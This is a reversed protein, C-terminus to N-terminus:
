PHGLASRASLAPEVMAALQGLTHYGLDAANIRAGTRNEFRAVVQMAMLSSGGLDYFNDTTEVADVGLLDRWLEALLQEGPTRPGRVGTTSRAGAAVAQPEPPPLRRRDLKGNPTLPLSALVVFAGPVMYDPLRTRLFPRLVGDAAAAAIDGVVYAVLRPSRDSSSTPADTAVVASTRVAAHQGLAAEIDQLEVRFGRIKVQRDHRGVFAVAGDPLYRGMDGTRYLRDGARGTFPNVVFRERTLDDDGLYGRALQPGRVHVEGVEGIGALRGGANLVLLQVGDIGRGIPVAAAPAPCGEPPDAAIHYAVAQPTETAGYFNVVRGAPALRRWLAVADRTLVDGAFCTLRLAPLTPLTPRAQDIMGEDSLAVALAPTVHVVTVGSEALWARLRHPSSMADPDPVCVTAGLALPTFVDRLLPDHALGSLLAFRDSGDLGFTRSHWGVFRALPGHEGLIGKPRGSSGSTFAIYALDGPGVAGCGDVDADAPPPLTRACLGGDAAAPDLRVRHCGLSAICAELMDPPEGAASLGIFARPRAIALCDALRAVPHAPDLIVFAAGARLTGLLAPVLAAGRHAYIAVADGHAIGGAQLATAVRASWADLEAYTWVRHADAVAPRGPVRRAQRVFAEVVTRPEDIGTAAGGSWATGAASAEAAGLAERPDPLQRRASETLLSLASIPRDPDATAQELLLELQALWETMRAPLFLDANYVLALGLRGDRESVYLTLDFKSGPDPQVIPTSVIGPLTEAGEDFGMVNFFVQFLPTRGPDRPPQLAELLKEFPVDQHSFAALAVERVRGALTRFSPAGSLDTRLVLSNVFFGVIPEIDARSRGAIPTGVVVDDQGTQRHLLAKFAALLAMFVTLGEQRCLAQIAQTLRAPLRRTTRAGRYSSMAPRAFDTPLDLPAPPGELQRRWYDISGSRDDGAAQERQWVAYDAYQIPPEALLPAEGRRLAAYTSTIEKSLIAMSWGDSVIHHMSLMFVHTGPTLRLLVARTLPGRELDFPRAAEAAISREVEAQADGPALGGLDVVTLPMSGSPAVVQYPVGDDAIFTTRLSEHRRVVEDLSRQLIGADLPGDLRVAQFINYAPNGPELRDLVWMREQAFSLPWPGGGQRRPIPAIPAGDTLGEQELLLDLLALRDASLETVNAPRDDLSPTM